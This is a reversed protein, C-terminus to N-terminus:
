CFVAYSIAVHSSNLRTSKRDATNLADVFLNDMVQTMSKDERTTGNREAFVSVSAAWPEPLGYPPPPFLKQAFYPLKRGRALFNEASGTSASAPNRPLLVSM